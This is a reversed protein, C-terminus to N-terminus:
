EAKYTGMIRDYLMTYQGYNSIPYWHHTDHHAVQYGWIRADIRTHNLASLVAAAVLFMLVAAVHVPWPYIYVLAKFAVLYVSEGLWLEIPHVNIADLNGRFPAKQRHHHKHIWGYLWRNHLLYHLPTYVMDYLHFLLFFPVVASLWISEWSLDFVVRDATEQLVERAFYYTFIAVAFKGHLIYLWDIQQLRYLRPGQDRLRQPTLSGAVLCAVMSVVEMALVVTATWAAYMQWSWETQGVAYTVLGALRYLLLM